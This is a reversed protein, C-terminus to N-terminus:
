TTFSEVFLLEVFRAVFGGEVLSFPTSNVILESVLSAMALLLVCRRFFYFQVPFPFFPISLSLVPVFHSSSAFRLFPILPTPHRNPWEFRLRAPFVNRTSFM